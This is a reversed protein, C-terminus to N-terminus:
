EVAAPASVMSIGGTLPQCEVVALGKDDVYADAMCEFGTCGTFSSVLPGGPEQMKFVDGQKMVFLPSLIWEYSHACMRHANVRRWVKRLEGKANVESRLSM